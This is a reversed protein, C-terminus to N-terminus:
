YSAEVFTRMLPDDYFRALDQKIREAYASAVGLPTQWQSWVKLMRSAYSQLWKEKTTNSETRRSDPSCTGSRHETRSSNEQTNM